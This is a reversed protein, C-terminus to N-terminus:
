IFLLCYVKMQHITVHEVVADFRRIKFNMQWLDSFCISIHTTERDPEHILLNRWSDPRHMHLLSPCLQKLGRMQYNVSQYMITVKKFDRETGFTSVIKYMWKAFLSLSSDGKISILYM